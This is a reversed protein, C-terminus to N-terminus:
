GPRKYFASFANGILGHRSIVRMTSRTGREVLRYNDDDIELDSEIENRILARVLRACSDVSRVVLIGNLVGTSLIVQLALPHQEKFTRARREFAIATAVMIGVLHRRTEQSLEQPPGERTVSDLWSRYAAREAEPIRVAEGYLDFDAWHSRVAATLAAATTHTLRLTLLRALLAQADMTEDAEGDDENGEASVMSQLDSPSKSGLAESDVVGAIYLRPVYVIVPKGQGLAVSAESDKGFTDSKQAMYLTMVSRKLMLAEVLGKAVRDEIWSQTPNFHRLRLPQLSGDNFLGNCFSNVSVFDADSRMSTAVYVDLHDAALYRALNRMAMAQTEAMRALDADEKPAIFDAERLLEDPDPAFLPSIFGHQINSKLKRLLSDMRRKKKESIHALAGKDKSLNEAVERLFTALASREDREQRAREASIYGLDPLREDPILEIGDWDSRHRYGDDKKPSIASLAEEMSPTSSLTEYAQEFTSFLRIADKQYSRIRSLLAEPSRIADPGLYREFFPQSCRSVDYFVLVSNFADFAQAATRIASSLSLVSAKAVMTTHQDHHRLSVSRGLLEALAEEFALQKRYDEDLFESWFRPPLGLFQCLTTLADAAPLRRGQELHAVVSRNTPPVISKALADQSLGKQERFAQIHEGLERLTISM